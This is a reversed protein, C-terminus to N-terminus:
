EPRITLWVGCHGVAERHTTIRLSHGDPSRHVDRDLYTRARSPERSFTNYAGGWRNTVGQEFDWLVLSGSTPEAASSGVPLLLTLMLLGRVGFRSLEGEAKLNGQSNM